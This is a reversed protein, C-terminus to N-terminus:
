AQLSYIIVNGHSSAAEPGSRLRLISILFAFDSKVSSAILVNSVDDCRKARAVGHDTGSARNSIRMLWRITLGSIESARFCNARSSPSESKAKLATLETCTVLELAVSCFTGNRCFLLDFSDSNEAIRGHSSLCQKTGANQNRIQADVSRALIGHKFYRLLFKSYSCFRPRSSKAFNLITALIAARFCLSSM